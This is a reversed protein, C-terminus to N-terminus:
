SDDVHITKTENHGEVKYKNQDQLIKFSFGLM